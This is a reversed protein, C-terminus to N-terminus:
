KLRSRSANQPVDFRFDLYSPNMVLDSYAISVRRRERMMTVRIYRPVVVGNVTEFNSFLQELALKGNGDLHHIKVIQMTQPDIWYTRTGNYSNYKLVFQDEEITFVSPDTRDESLFFGGTFLNLVDDFNLPIHFIKDLNAANTPGEVLRNQFSYYFLLKERTVLASGVDIGFPGEIKVLVSDPKRMTLDFSGSQAIESSEVSITGSGSMGLVREHNKEVSEQLM